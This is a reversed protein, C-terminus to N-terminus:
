EDAVIESILYQSWSIFYLRQIRRLIGGVIAVGGLWDGATDGEESRASVPLELRDAWAALFLEWELLLQDIRMLLLNALTTSFSLSKEVNQGYFYYIWLFARKWETNYHFSCCFARADEKVLGGGMEWRLEYRVLTGRILSNLVNMGYLGLQQLLMYCKNLFNM